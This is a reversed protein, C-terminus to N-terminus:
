WLHCLPYLSFRDPFARRRKATLSQSFGTVMRKVMGWILARIGLIDLIILMPRPRFM